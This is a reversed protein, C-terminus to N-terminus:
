MRHASLERTWRWRCRFLLTNWQPRQIGMERTERMVVALGRVQKCGDRYKLSRSGRRRSSGEGRGMRVGGAWCLTAMTSSEEEVELDNVEM